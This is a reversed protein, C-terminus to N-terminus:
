GLLEFTQGSIGTSDPGMLYLYTPMLGDSAPLSAHLEGPHSQRRQPSQVAGPVVINM